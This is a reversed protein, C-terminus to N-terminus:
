GFVGASVSLKSPCLQSLSVFVMRMFLAGCFCWSWITKCPFEAVNGFGFLGLAGYIIGSHQRRLFVGSAGSACIVLIWFGPPLGGFLFDCLYQSHISIGSCSALPQSVFKLGSNNRWSCPACGANPVRNVHHWTLPCFLLANTSNRWLLQFCCGGCEQHFAERTKRFLPVGKLGLVLM